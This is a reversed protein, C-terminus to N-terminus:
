KQENTEVFLPCRDPLYYHSQLLTNSGRSSEAMITASVIYANNILSAISIKCRFRIHALQQHCHVGDHHDVHHCSQEFRATQIELVQTSHYWLAM